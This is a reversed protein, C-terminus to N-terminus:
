LTPLWTSMSLQLVASMCQNHILSALQFCRGSRSDYLIYTYTKLSYDAMNSHDRAQIPMTPESNRRSDHQTIPANSGTGIPGRNLPERHTALPIRILLGRGANLAYSSIAHTQLSRGMLQPRSARCSSASLFRSSLRASYLTQEPQEVNAWRHLLLPRKM